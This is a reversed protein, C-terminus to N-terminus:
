YAEPDLPVRYHSSGNEPDIIWFPFVTPLLAPQILALIYCLSIVNTDVDGFTSDFVNVM